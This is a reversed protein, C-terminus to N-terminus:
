VHVLNPGIGIRRLGIGVVRQRQALGRRVFNLVAMLCEVLCDLAVPRLRGQVFNVEHDIDEVLTEARKVDAVLLGLLQHIGDFLLVVKLEL